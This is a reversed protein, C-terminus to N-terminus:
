DRRPRPHAYYHRRADHRSPAPPAQYVHVRRRYLVPPEHRYYVWGPGRRYYWRGNVLYVPRGAYDYRPYAEVRAPVYDAEVYDVQTSAGASAYCGTAALAWGVIGLLALSRAV